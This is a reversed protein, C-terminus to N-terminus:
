QLNNLKIKYSMRRPLTHNHVCKGDILLNQKTANQTAKAM